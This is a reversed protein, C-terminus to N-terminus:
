TIVTGKKPSESTSTESGSREGDPSTEQQDPSLKQAKFASNIRVSSAKQTNKESTHTVDDNKKRMPSSVPLRSKTATSAHIEPQNLQQKKVGTTERDAPLGMKVSKQEHEKELGNVLNPPEFDEDAKQRILKTGPKNPAKTPSRNGSASRGAKAEEFSPKRGVKIAATPSKVSEKSRPLKQLKSAVTSGSVDTVSLKDATSKVDSDSTSKKPIKTRSEALTSSRCSNQDKLLPPMSVAGSNEQQTPYDSSTERKTGEISSKPKTTVNKAKGETASSPTKTADAATHQKPAAGKVRQKSEATQNTGPSRVGSTSPPSKTKYMDSGSHSDGFDSAESDTREEVLPEPSSTQSQAAEETSSLECSADRFEADSNNQLSLSSCPKNNVTM